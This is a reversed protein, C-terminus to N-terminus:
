KRWHRGQELLWEAGKVSDDIVKHTSKLSPFFAWFAHPLGPYMDLRTKVDCEERLEREYILGEDRLPDM